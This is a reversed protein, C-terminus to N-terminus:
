AGGEREAALADMALLRLTAKFEEMELQWAAGLLDPDGFAKMVAAEGGKEELWLVAQKFLDARARFATM